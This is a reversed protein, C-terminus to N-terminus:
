WDLYKERVEKSIGFEDCTCHSIPAGCNDNSCHVQRELSALYRVQMLRQAERVADDTNWGDYWPYLDEM